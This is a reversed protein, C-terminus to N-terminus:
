NGRLPEGRVSTLSAHSGIQLVMSGAIPTEMPESVRRVWSALENGPAESSLGERVVRRYVRLSREAMTADTFKETARAIAGVALRDRLGPEDLLREAARALAPPNNIPVTLGSRGHPSVWAVGSNTIDTNIVPCGSAMAEVQVLGFAESRASSPFWLATAARYAGLLEDQSAHGWWVVRQAVGLAEAKERLERLLPGCGIIILTGPVRTLAEIAVHLGKYYVVRGVSLWITPGYRARLKREAELVAPAPRSFAGLDM